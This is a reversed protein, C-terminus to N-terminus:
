GTVYGEATRLADQINGERLCDLPRRCDLSDYQCLFFFITGMDDLDPFTRLVGLVREIGPLLNEGKFQWIPFKHLHNFQDWWGILRRKRYRSLVTKRSVGLRKAVEAATVSGGEVTLARRRAPIGRILANAYKNDTNSEPFEHRFALVTMRAIREAKSKGSIKRFALRLHRLISKEEETLEIQGRMRKSM